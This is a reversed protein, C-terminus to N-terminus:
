HRERLGLFVGLSVGFLALFSVILLLGSPMFRETAIFRYAFYIAMLFTLVGGSYGASVSGRSTHYALFLFLGTGVLSSILSITSGASFYAACGGLLILGGFLLLTLTALRM